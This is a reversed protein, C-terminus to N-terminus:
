SVSEWFIRTESLAHQYNEFTMQRAPEIFIHGDPNTPDVRCRLEGEPLDDTDMGFLTVKKATGGHEPPLRYHPINSSPPPSVSLGGTGPRVMGDEVPIDGTEAGPRVGLGRPSPAVKPLGDEDARMGRLIRM